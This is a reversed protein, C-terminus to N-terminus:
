GEHVREYIQQGPRSRASTHRRGSGSSRTRGTSPGTPNRFDPVNHAHHRADIVEKSTTTPRSGPCISSRPGGSKPWCPRRTRKCRRLSCARSGLDSAYGVCGLRRRAGPHLYHRSDESLQRRDISLIENGGEGEAPHPLGLLPKVAMYNHCEDCFKKKNSHRRM